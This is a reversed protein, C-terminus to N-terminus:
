ILWQKAHGLGLFAASMGNKKVERNPAISFQAHIWEEATNLDRDFAKSNQLALNVTKKHQGKLPEPSMISLSVQTERAPLLATRRNV